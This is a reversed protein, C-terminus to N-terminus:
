RSARRIISSVSKKGLNLRAGTDTLGSMYSSKTGAGVPLNLHPLHQYSQVVM